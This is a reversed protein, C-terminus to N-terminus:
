IANKASWRPLATELPEEVRTPTDTVASIYKITGNGLSSHRLSMETIGLDHIKLITSIM